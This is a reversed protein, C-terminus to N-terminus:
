RRETMDLTMVIREQVSGGVRRRGREVEVFGLRTYLSVATANSAYVSLRVRESGLRRAVDLTRETMWRGLGRGRHGRDILIGFIPVEFGEDWGRLMSIGVLTSACLAGFYRDARPENTIRRASEATLPFPHFFGAHGANREFLDTLLQEHEAGLTVFRAAPRERNAFAETM